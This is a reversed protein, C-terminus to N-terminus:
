ENTNVKDDIPRVYFERSCSFDLTCDGVTFQAPCGAEYNACFYIKQGWSCKIVDGSEYGGKVLKEEIPNLLQFGKRNAEDSKKM